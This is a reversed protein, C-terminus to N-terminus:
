SVDFALTLICLFGAGPNIRSYGLVLIRLFIVGIIGIDEDRGGEGDQLNLVFFCTLSLRFLSFNLSFFCYLFIYFYSCSFWNCNFDLHSNSRMISQCVLM